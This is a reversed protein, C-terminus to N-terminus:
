LVIKSSKCIIQSSLERCSGERWASNSNKKRASISKLLSKGKTSSWDSIGKKHDM